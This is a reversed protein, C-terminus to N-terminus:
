VEISWGHLPRGEPVTFDRQLKMAFRRPPINHERCFPVFDKGVVEFVEGKPDTIKYTIHEEITHM